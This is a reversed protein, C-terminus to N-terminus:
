EKEKNDYKQKIARAAAIGGGFAFALNYGGCDGDIDLAEGAIFLGGKIRSEMTVPDVGNTEIGGRTVQASDFGLTGTVKLRFDKLEAAPDKGAARKLIAQGLRKSVLASLLESKDVHPAAARLEILRRVEPVSKGPLFGVSIYPERAGVVLPSVAFIASGSVGYETFLVDGAARRLPKNGDYM